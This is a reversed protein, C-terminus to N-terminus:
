AELSKSMPTQHNAVCKAAVSTLFLLLGRAFLLNSNDKEMGCEVYNSIAITLHVDNNYCMVVCMM